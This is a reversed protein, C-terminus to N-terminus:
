KPQQVPSSIPGAIPRGIPGTSTTIPFTNAPTEEVPEEPSLPRIPLGAPQSPILMEVELSSIAAKMQGRTEFHLRIGEQKTVFRILGFRRWTYESPDVSSILQGLTEGGLDDCVLLGSQTEGPRSEIRVLGRIHIMSGVPALIPPSTVRMAAGAYGTPVPQEGVPRAALVLCPQGDPGVEAVGCDSQVSDVLRRDVRWESQYFEDNNRFPIGPFALSQWRRGELLRNFEFHLPLSLPSTILPSTQFASFQKAAQEWSARVVSQAILLARDADKLAAPINSRSLHQMSSRHLSEAHRIDEWNSVRQAVLTKQALEIVQQTISIRSEVMSPAISAIQERLYAVPKPDATTVIQEILGPRDIAVIMGGPTQQPRLVELEGHTIRFVNRIQGSTPLVVQIREPMPAVSCIQDMYGSAMIIGLQSNPTELIAGTHNPSDITLTRWSSQGARIWPMLLEIERNIATYSESRAMSTLDGSDLPTGSRFMWGRAGQMISRYVQMRVQLLDYDATESPEGGLARVAMVKQAIWENPMQTVISTLPISRGTIPGLDSQMIEMAERSSRVRTPLPQPIALWDSMRGYSGYLEMAEGIMPRSLSAPFKSVKAARMRTQDFHSQDLAMGLLWAQVHQYNQAVNDTPVLDPPTAIIGMGSRAAQEVVLPDNARSTIVANFGLSKLYDLSEGQYQIWRPVTAQLQRLQDEVPLHSLDGITSRDALNPTDSISPAIMGEVQLDDIQLKITGTPWSYVSLVVADVFADQLDIGQGYKARLFRQREQFQNGVHEISTTSWRGGGENSSGLLVEAIPDRTAPDTSRPFVVRFGVRLGSQASRIRLSAKLDDLIASPEIPYILHVYSGTGFSVEINEAGPETKNAPTLQANADSNWLRFKPRTSDFSDFLQARAVRTQMAFVLLVFLVRVWGAPIRMRNKPKSGRGNPIHQLNQHVVAVDSSVISARFSVGTAGHPWRTSKECCLGFTLHLFPFM